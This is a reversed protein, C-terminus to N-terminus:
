AHAPLVIPTAKPTELPDAAAIVRDRGARKARYLAADAALILDLGTSGHVPYVAVGLSLTIPKLGNHPVHMERVALRLIEARELAVEMSTGPIILLFEEGGYRCAIDEGRIESKVLNGLASLLEDGSNHGFTDNYDKFHDLDMMIVAVPSHTRTSRKLERDLTEEMYRRNFLGTLPDRIAQGRLTERLRLNALALAMDEAVTVALQEKPVAVSAAQGGPRPGSELHLVGLTEGQAMLPVCLYGDSCSSSLHRCLLAERPNDVKHLRGRRVSWCDDPAFVPIAPPTQGWTAVAEFLNRSNNLLYLAGSDGPFFKPMFYGIAGYAEESAQCAQMMDGMENALTMTSNQEEVQAVLVQLKDNTTQVAEEWQRRETIDVFSELLYEKGKLSVPVVTKIVWRSTGDARLLIRESNDIPEHLDTIPCQGAEKSCIFKHCVSGVIQDKPAGIMEVAVPNADVIVHIAPDILLVGTQVHDLITQLGIESERLTEDLHQRHIAQAYLMALRECLEQDRPTYDRDANALAILGVLQDEILAPVSLFRHIPPHGPPTGTARPDQVPHNDLLPQGHKLVWGWLGDFQHFELPKAETGLSEWDEGAMGPVMLAGTVFNIHGCFALKSGTLNRAHGNVLSAIDELSLSTMLSKSLDAIASNVMAEWVLDAAVKKRGTIDRVFVIERVHDGHLIKAATCEVDVLAGDKKRYRPGPELNPGTIGARVFEERPELSGPARIQHIELGVLEKLDYGLWRAMFPNADIITGTEPDLVFVAEPAADFM